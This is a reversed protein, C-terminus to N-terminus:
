WLQLRSIPAFRPVMESDRSALEEQQNDVLKQKQPLCTGLEFVWSLRLLSL